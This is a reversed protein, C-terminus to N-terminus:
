RTPSPPPATKEFFFSAVCVMRLPEAVMVPSRTFPSTVRLSDPSYEFTAFSVKSRGITVSAGAALYATSIWQRAPADSAQPIQTPESKPLEIFCGEKDSPAKKDRTAKTPESAIWNSLKLRDHSDPQSKRKKPPMEKLAVQEWIRKWMEANDATAGNLEHLAM